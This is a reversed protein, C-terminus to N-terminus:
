RGEGDGPVSVDIVRYGYVNLVETTQYSSRWRSNAGYLHVHGHILYRPRFREMFRLLSRFGQHCLDEQDHIGRPPAHTVLIDLYRGHRLRTALLRPWLALSRLAVERDSYQYPGPKYRRSGELGAIWLGRHQVVRCDLNICGSPEAPVLGDLTQEWQRDHNGHVYYLPVTLMTVIYELYDYPLDGCALVLDVDGFYKRIHPGYILEAVKDAIALIKM